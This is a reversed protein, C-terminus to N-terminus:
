SACFSAGGCSLPSRTDVGKNHIEFAFIMMANIAVAAMHHCETESDRSEGEAWLWAHRQLAAFPRGWDMGKEWNRDGYKEAGAAMLRAMERLFEPALLDFRPKNEDHKIGHTAGYDIVAPSKAAAALHKEFEPAHGIGSTAM